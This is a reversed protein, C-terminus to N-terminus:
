REPTHPLYIFLKYINKFWWTVVWGFDISIGDSPLWIESVKLKINRRLFLGERGRDSM